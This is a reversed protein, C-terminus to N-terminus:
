IAFFCAAFINYPTTRISTHRLLFHVGVLAAIVESPMKLAASALSDRYMLDVEILGQKIHMRGESLFDLFEQPSFPRPAPWEFWVESSSPETYNTRRNRFYKRTEKQSNVFLHYHDFLANKCFM